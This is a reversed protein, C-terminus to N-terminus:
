YMFKDNKGKHGDDVKIVMTKEVTNQEKEKNFIREKFTNRPSNKTTKVNINTSKTKDKGINIMINM